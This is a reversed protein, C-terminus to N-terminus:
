ICMELRQFGSVASDKIDDEESDVLDPVEDKIDAEGDVNLVGYKGIAEAKKVWVDFEPTGNKIDLAIVKGTPVNKIFSGKKSLIVDNDENVMKIFSALNKKVGAVQCDMKFSDGTNTFGKLSRQGYNAIPTGSAARYNLGSKSAATAELNFAKGTDQTIVHDVAGSDGCFRVKEWEGDANIIPCFMVTKEKRKKVKTWAANEEDYSVSYQEDGWIGSNVAYQEQLYDWEM